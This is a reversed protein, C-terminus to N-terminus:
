THPLKEVQTNALGLVRMNSLRQIDESIKKLPNNSLLLMQVTLCDYLENPLGDLENGVVNLETIQKCEGIEPDLKTIQNNSCDLRKLDRLSLFFGRPLASIRNRALSLDELSELNLFGPPLESIRNVSLDLKRLNVLRAISRHIYQISNEVLILERMGHHLERPFFALDCGQINLVNFGSNNKFYNDRLEVAIRDLKKNIIDVRREPFEHNDFMAIIEDQSKEYANKSKGKVHSSMYNRTARERIQSLVPGEKKVIIVEEGNIMYGQPEREVLKKGHSLFDDLVLDLTNESKKQSKGAASKVPSRKTPSASLSHPETM